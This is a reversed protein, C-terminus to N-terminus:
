YEGQNIQLVLRHAEESTFGSKKKAIIKAYFKDDKKIWIFWGNEQHQLEWYAIAEINLKQKELAPCNRNGYKCGGKNERQNCHTLHTLIESKNL